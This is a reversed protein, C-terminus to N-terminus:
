NMFNFPTETVTEEEMGLDEYTIIGDELAKNKLELYLGADATYFYPNVYLIALIGLTFISLIWWGLFSLVFVFIEWKHGQTIRM